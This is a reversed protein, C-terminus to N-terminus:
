REIAPRMRILRKWEESVRHVIGLIRLRAGEPKESYDFDCYRSWDTKGKPHCGRRAGSGTSVTRGPRM